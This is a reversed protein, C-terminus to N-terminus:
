HRLPALWYSNALSYIITIRGDAVLRAGNSNSASLHIRDLYTSRQAGCWEAILPIEIM